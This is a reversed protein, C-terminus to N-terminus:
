VLIGKKQSEIMYQKCTKYEAIGKLAVNQEKLITTKAEEDRFPLKRKKMYRNYSITRLREEESILWRDM